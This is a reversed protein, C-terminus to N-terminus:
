FADNYGGSIKRYYLKEVGSINSIKSLQPIEKCHLVLYVKIGHEDIYKEYICYSGIREVEKFVLQECHEDFCLVEMTYQYRHHTHYYWVWLYFCVTMIITLMYAGLALGAGTMMSWYLFLLSIMQKRLQFCCIFFILTLLLPLINDVNALMIIYASFMAIPFSYIMMSSLKMRTTFYISISGILIATLSIIWLVDIHLSTLIESDLLTNVFALEM